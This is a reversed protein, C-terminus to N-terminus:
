LCFPSVPLQHRVTVSYSLTNCPLSSKGEVVKYVLQCRLIFRMFTVILAAVESVNVLSKQAGFLPNRHRTGLFIGGFTTCKKLLWAFQTVRESCQRLTFM